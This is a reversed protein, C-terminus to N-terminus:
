GINRPGGSQQSVRMGFYAVSRMVLSWPAVCLNFGLNNMLLQVKSWYKTRNALTQKRLNGVTMLYQRSESTTGYM